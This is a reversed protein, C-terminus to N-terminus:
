EMCKELEDVSPAALACIVDKHRVESTCRLFAPEAAASARAQSKALAIDAQRARPDEQRILLEVYRDLLADCEASTPRRGCGGLALLAALLAPGTRASPKM